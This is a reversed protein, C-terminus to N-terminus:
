SIRGSINGQRNKDESGQIVGPMYFVTLTSWMKKRWSMKLFLLLFICNAAHISFCLAAPSQLVSIFVSWNLEETCFSRNVKCM